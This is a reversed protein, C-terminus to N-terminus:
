TVALPHVDHFHRHSLSAFHQFHIGISIQANGHTGHSEGEVGGTTVDHPGVDVCTLLLCPTGNQSVAYFCLDSASVSVDLRDSVHYASSKGLEDM